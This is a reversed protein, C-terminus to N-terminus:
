HRCRDHGFQNLDDILRSAERVSLEELQETGLRSQLEKALDLQWRDAISRLARIQAETAPRKETVRRVTGPPVVHEQGNALVGNGEARGAVEAARDTGQRSLEEEVSQECAAFAQRAREQFGEPHDELLRSDLEIELQCSAGLSSYNPLGIKKILGVNLKLPM